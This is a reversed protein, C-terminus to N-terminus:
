TGGDSVWETVNSADDALAGALYDKYTPIREFDALIVILVNGIEEPFYEINIGSDAKNVDLQHMM